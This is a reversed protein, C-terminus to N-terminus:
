TFIPERQRRELYVVVHHAVALFFYGTMLQFAFHSMKGQTRGFKWKSALFCCM